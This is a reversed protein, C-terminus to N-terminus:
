PFSATWGQQVLLSWIEDARDLASDDTCFRENALIKAETFVRLSWRNDRESLLCKTVRGADDWLRWVTASLSM